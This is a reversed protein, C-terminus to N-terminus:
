NSIEGVCVCQKNVLNFVYYILKSSWDRVTTFEPREEYLVGDIRVTKKVYEIQTLRHDGGESLYKISDTVKVLSM